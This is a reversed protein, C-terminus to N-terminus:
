RNSGKKDEAEGNLLPTQLPCIDQVLVGVHDVFPNFCWVCGKKLGMFARRGEPFSILQVKRDLLMFYGWSFRRTKPAYLVGAKRGSLSYYGWLAQPNRPSGMSINAEASAIMNCGRLVATLDAPRQVRLSRSFFAQSPPEFGGPAVMM